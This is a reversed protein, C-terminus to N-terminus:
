TFPIYIQHITIFNFFQLIYVNTFLTQASPVYMHKNLITGPLFKDHCWCKSLDDKSFISKTQPNAGFGQPKNLNVLNGLLYWNEILFGNCGFM